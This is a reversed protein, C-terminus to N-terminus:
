RSEGTVPLRYEQFGCVLTFSFPLKVGLVRIVEFYMDLGPVIIQGYPYIKSSLKM